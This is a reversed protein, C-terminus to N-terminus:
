TINFNVISIRITVVLLMLQQNCILTIFNNFSSILNTVQVLCILEKKLEKRFKTYRKLHSESM